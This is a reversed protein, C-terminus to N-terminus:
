AAAHNLPKLDRLQAVAAEAALVFQTSHQIVETVDERASAQMGMSVRFFREAHIGAHHHMRVGKAGLLRPNGFIRSLAWSFAGDEGGVRRFFPHMPFGGLAAYAPRRIVLTSAVTNSLTAAHRDFDPHRTIEPPFGAFDVDLRVCAATPNHKLFHGAATLAGPLYEDDADIFALVSQSAHMAAWNRASAAGGNQPMRLLAIRADRKAYHSAVEISHDTSADDAVIIEAAEPQAVCSDLTRALTSAAQYCPIIISVPLM